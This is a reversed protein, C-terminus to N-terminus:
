RDITRNELVDHPDNKDKKADLFILAKINVRRRMKIIDSARFRQFNESVNFNFSTDMLRRKCDIECIQLFYDSSKEKETGIILLESYILISFSQNYTM